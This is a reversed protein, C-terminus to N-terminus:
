YRGTSFYCKRSQVFLGRSIEISNVVCVITGKQQPCNM